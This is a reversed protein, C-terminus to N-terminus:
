NDIDIKLQYDKVKNKKLLAHYFLQVVIIPLVFLVLIVGLISTTTFGMTTFIMLPGVLGSTGMGAGEPNSSLQFIITGIPAIIVSALMPPVILWPNLLINKIQLMSTGLGVAITSGLSNVKRGMSAFGVMQVCCGVTAAGAALGSLQLMISIAASSLPSTLLVGMILAISMSMILPHTTTTENVLMGIGQMIYGAYQGLTIASVYGTVLVVFPVLLIRLPNNKSLLSGAEIAIVTSLYGGIPGGSAYGLLGVVSSAGIILLNKSMKYAIAVAIAPGVMSKAAVGIAVLPESVFSVVSIDVIANGINELIVGIILTSFLGISMASLSDVIYTYIKNTKVM